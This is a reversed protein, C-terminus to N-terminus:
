LELQTEVIWPEPTGAELRACLDLHDELMKKAKAVSEELQKIKAVKQLTTGGDQSKMEPQNLAHTGKIAELESVLTHYRDELKQQTALMAASCAM